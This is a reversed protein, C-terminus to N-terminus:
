SRWCGTRDSLSSPRSHHPLHSPAPRVQGAIEKYVEEFKDRFEDTIPLEQGKHLYHSCSKLVIEPAGKLVCVREQGRGSPQRHITKM